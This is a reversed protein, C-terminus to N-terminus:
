AGRGSADVPAPQAVVASDLAVSAAPAVSATPATPAAPAAVTVVPDPTLPMRARVEFGGDATSEAVLEGGAALARARMGAIGHGGNGASGAPAAAPGNVVLLDLTDACRLTVRVAAGRAHRSANSLPEQVIRYLAPGTTYPAGRVHGPVPGGVQGSGPPGPAPRAPPTAPSVADAADAHGVGALEALAAHVAWFAGRGATAARLVAALESDPLAALRTLIESSESM